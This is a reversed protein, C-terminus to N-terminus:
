ASIRQLKRRVPRGCRDRHIPNRHLLSSRYPFAAPAEFAVRERRDNRYGTVARSGLDNDFHPASCSQRRTTSLQIAEVTRHCAQASSIICQIRSRWQRRRGVDQDIRHLGAIAQSIVRLTRLFLDRVEVLHQRLGLGGNLLQHLVSSLSQILESLPQVVLRAAASPRASISTSSTPFYDRLISRFPKLSATVIPM